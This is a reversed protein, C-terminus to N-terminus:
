SHRSRVSQQPAVSRPLWSAAILIIVMCPPTKPATAGDVASSVPSTHASCVASRPAPVLALDAVRGLPCTRTALLLMANHWQREFHDGHRFAKAGKHCEILHGHAHLRATHMRQETLIPSALTSQDLADHAIMARVIPIEQYPATLAREGIWALRMGKAQAHHVLVKGEHRVHSHRFIQQQCAWH